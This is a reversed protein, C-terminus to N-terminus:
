PFVIMGSDNGLLFYKTAYLDVCVRVVDRKQILLNVNDRLKDSSMATIDVHDLFDEDQENEM